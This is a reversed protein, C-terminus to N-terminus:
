RRARRLDDYAHFVADLSGGAKVEGADLLLASTCTERIWRESHSATVLIGSNQICQGLRERAREAFLEDGVGIAEDLLIVDSSFATAISFVLRMKMGASYTYYPMDLHEGLGSFDGIQEHSETLRQNDIGMYRCGLVINERGTAEPNLGIGPSLISLVAGDISVHGSTPPYIGALARLLTSKGAGNLGVLGVRDGHQARFSVSRLARIIIQRHSAGFRGLTGKRLLAKKLSFVDRSLVPIDIDLSQVEISAM